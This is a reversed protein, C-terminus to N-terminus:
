SASPKRMKRRRVFFVGAFAVIVLGVVTVVYLYAAFPSSDDKFQFQQSPGILVTGAWYYPLSYM